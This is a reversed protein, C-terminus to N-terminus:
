APSRGGLVRPSPFTRSGCCHDGPHHRHRHRHIRPHSPPDARPHRPWPFFSPLSHIPEVLYIIGVVVALIGLVVLVVRVVPPMEAEKQPCALALGRSACTPYVILFIQTHGSRLIPTAATLRTEYIGVLMVPRSRSRPHAQPAPICKVEWGSPLWLRLASPRVGSRLDRTDRDQAIKTCQGAPTARHRAHNGLRTHNGATTTSDRKVRSMPKAQHKLTGSTSHSNFTASCLYRATKCAPAPNRSVSTDLPVARHSCRCSLPLRCLLM